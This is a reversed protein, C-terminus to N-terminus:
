MPMAPAHRTSDRSEPPRGSARETLEAMIENATEGDDEILLLKPMAAHKARGDSGPQREPLISTEHGMRESVLVAM